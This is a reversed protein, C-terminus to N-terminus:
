SRCPCAPPGPACRLRSPRLVAPVVKHHQRRRLHLLRKLRLPIPRTLRACKAAKSNGRAPTAKTFSSFTKHIDHQGHKIKTAAFDNQNQGDHQDTRRWSFAPVPWPVPGPADLFELLRRAFHGIFNVVGHVLGRRRWFFIGAAVTAVSGLMGNGLSRGALPRIAPLPRRGHSILGFLTVKGLILFAPRDFGEEFM